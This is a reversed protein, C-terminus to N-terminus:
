YGPITPDNRRTSFKLEYTAVLAMQGLEKREMEWKRGLYTIRRVMGGLTPDTEILRRGRVYRLDAIRDTGAATTVVHRVMCRYVLEEDDTTQAADVDETDPIVNDAGGNRLEDDSFDTLRCRHANAAKGGLANTIADSIAFQVSNESV